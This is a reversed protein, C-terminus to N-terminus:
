ILPACSEQKFRHSFTLECSPSWIFPNSMRHTHLKTKLVQLQFWFWLVSITLPRSPCNLLWRTRHTVKSDVRDDHLKIHHLIHCLIQLQSRVSFAFLAPHGLVRCRNLQWVTHGARCLLVASSETETRDIAQGMRSCIVPLWIMPRCPYGSCCFWWWVCRWCDPRCFNPVIINIDLTHSEASFIGPLLYQM